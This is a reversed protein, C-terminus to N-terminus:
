IKQTLDNYFTEWDYPSMLHNLAYGFKQISTFIFDWEGNKFGELVPLNYSHYSKPKGGIKWKLESYRLELNKAILLGFDAVLSLGYNNLVLRGNELKETFERSESLVNYLKEGIENLDIEDSSSQNFFRLLNEVRENKIEQFWNFYELAEKKTWNKAGKEALHESPKFLPYIM